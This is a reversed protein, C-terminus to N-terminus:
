VNSEFYYGDTYADFKPERNIGYERFLEAVLKQQSPSIPWRGRYYRYYQSRSGFIDFLRNRLAIGLEYGVGALLGKMGHALRMPRDEIFCDCSNGKRAGPLVCDHHSLNAPALEAVHRRLCSGALPCGTQYCIAWDRPVDNFRLEIDM